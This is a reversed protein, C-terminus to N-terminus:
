SPKPASRGMASVIVFTAGGVVVGVFVEPFRALSSVLPVVYLRWAVTSIVGAVMGSIAGTGTSRPWYLIGMLGPLFASAYLAGALVTLEVIGFDLAPYLRTLAACAVAALACLLVLMRAARLENGQFRMGALPLLDRQAAAAAVLLVSDITSMAAAVLATLIIAGLFPGVVMAQGLLFPVISDTRAAVEPPLEYARALLGIPLLLLYTAGVLLTVWVLGQRASTAKRLGYFRSLQRPDAVMKLGGSLGIGLIFVLPAQMTISLLSYGGNAVHTRNVNELTNWMDHWGGAGDILGFALSAAGAFLIVAQVSDAWMVALYGGLATYVLQVSLVVVLSAAFRIGVLASFSEAAGLFVAALFIISDFFIIAAAIGGAAPSRFHLRFLDSPVVSGLEAARDRFRPAIIAWSFATLAVLVLGVLLWSVGFIYSKASHGVFSNTSVFTAFFSLVVFPTRVNRGGVYYDEISRTRKRAMLALLFLLTLYIASVLVKILM